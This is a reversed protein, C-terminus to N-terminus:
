ERLELIRRNKPLLQLNRSLNDGQMVRANKRIEPTKQAVFVSMQPSVCCKNKCTQSVVSAKFNEPGNKIIPTVSGLPLAFYTDASVTSIVDFLLNCRITIVCNVQETM